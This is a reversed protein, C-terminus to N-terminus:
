RQTIFHYSHARVKRAFHFINFNNKNCKNCLAFFGQGDCKNWTEKKLFLKHDFYSFIKIMKRGRKGHGERGRKGGRAREREREREM